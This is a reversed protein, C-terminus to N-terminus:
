SLSQGQLLFSNTNPAHFMQTTKQSFIIDGTPRTIFNGNNSGPYELYAAIRQRKVDGLNAASYIDLKISNSGPYLTQIYM